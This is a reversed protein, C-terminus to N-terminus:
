EYLKLINQYKYSGIVQSIKIAKELEPMYKCSLTKQRYSYEAVAKDIYTSIVGELTGIDYYMDMAEKYFSTEQHNLVIEIVMRYRLLAALLVLSISDGADIHDVIKLIEKIEDINKYEKDNSVISHKLLKMYNSMLRGQKHSWFSCQVAEKLSLKSDAIDKELNYLDDAFLTNRDLLAKKHYEDVRSYEHSHFYHESNAALHYEIIIRKDSTIKERIAEYEDFLKINVKDVAINLKNLFDITCMVQLEKTISIRRCFHERWAVSIEDKSITDPLVNDMFDLCVKKLYETTNENLAEVKGRFLSEAKVTLANDYGEHNCVYNKDTCDFSNEYIRRIISNIDYLDSLSYGVFVNERGAKFSDIIRKFIAKETIKTINELTNGMARGSISTGHFHIIEAGEKTKYIIEKKEKKGKGILNEHYLYEYAKEICMDFNATFITAGGHLLSALLIHNYNFKMENFVEFGRMFKGDVLYREVFAVSSLLLEMRPYKVCRPDDGIIENVERWLNMIEFKYMLVQDCVFDMLQPGSPLGTPSDMSIGAGAWISLKKLNKM